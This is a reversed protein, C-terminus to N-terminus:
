FPMLKLDDWGHVAADALVAWTGYLIVALVLALVGTLRRHAVLAGALVIAPVGAAAAVGLQLRVVEHRECAESSEVDCALWDILGAAFLATGAAGLILLALSVPVVWRQIYPLRQVIDTM